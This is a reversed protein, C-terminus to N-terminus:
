DVRITGVLRIDRSSSGVYVPVDGRTIQWRDRKVDWYSVSRRTIGVSMTARGGPALDARAWGALQKPPTPPGTPLRGVYVQAVETGPAEGVNAVTFSLRAIERGPNAAPHVRLRGYRFSTYSLGHGFPFLPTPDINSVKNAQGLRSALYTTPQGGPTRPVSVPLRGSPCIRGSLVGAIAPGGEEGPFFTQVIGALRDAFAGLAYPRGTLLVLVVPTGCGLLAELL